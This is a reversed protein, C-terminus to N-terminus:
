ASAMVKLPRFGGRVLHDSAAALVNGVDAPLGAKQLGPQVAVFEFEIQAAAANSLLDEFRELDGCVFRASGKRNSFRRRVSARVRQKLAWIVSKVAQGALEYVDGVRHGAAAGGARKCHYFRILM